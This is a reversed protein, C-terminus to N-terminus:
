MVYKHTRHSLEPKGQLTSEIEILAADTERSRAIFDRDAYFRAGTALCLSMAEDARVVLEKLQKNGSFGLRVFQHHGKLEVFTCSELRLSFTELLKQLISHAAYAQHSFEQMAFSADIPNLWVPLNYANSKDKLILVPRQQVSGLSIGFVFLEVASVQKASVKARVRIPKKSITRVPKTNESKM